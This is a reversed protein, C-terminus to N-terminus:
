INNNYYLPIYYTIIHFVFFLFVCSSHMKQHLLHFSKKMKMKYTLQGMFGQHFLLLFHSVFKVYVCLFIALLIFVDHLTLIHGVLATELRPEKLNSM